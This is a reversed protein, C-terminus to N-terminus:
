QNSLFLDTQNEPTGGELVLKGTLKLTKIIGSVPEADLDTQKIEYPAFQVVQQAPLIKDNILRMLTSDSVGCYRKAEVMNLIGDNDRKNVTKLGQKRRVLAVSSKTWRNGKGTKRGLKSL